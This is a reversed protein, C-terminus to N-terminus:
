ALGRFRATLWPAVATTLLVVPWINGGQLTYAGFLEQWSKHQAIRGFGFEFVLTLLLWFAGVGL